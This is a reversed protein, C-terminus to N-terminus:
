SGADCLDKAAFLNRHRSAEFADANFDPRRFLLVSVIRLVEPPVDPFRVAAPQPCPRQSGFSKSADIDSFCARRRVAKGVHQVVVLIKTPMDHRVPTAVAGADIGVVQDQFVPGAINSRDHIM